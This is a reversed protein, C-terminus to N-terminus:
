SNFNTVRSFSDPNESKILMLYEGDLNRDKLSADFMKIQSEHTMSVGYLSCKKNEIVFIYLLFLFYFASFDLKM